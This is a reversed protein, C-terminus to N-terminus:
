GGRSTPGASAWVPPRSTFRCPGRVRRVAAAAMRDRPAGPECRGHAGLPVPSERPHSGSPRAPSERCLHTERCWLGPGRRQARNSSSSVGAAPGRGTWSLPGSEPAPSRRRMPLGTTSTSMGWRTGDGGPRWAGIPRRFPCEGWSWADGAALSGIGMGLGLGENGPEAQATSGVADLFHADGGSRLGASEETAPDHHRAWADFLRRREGDGQGTM